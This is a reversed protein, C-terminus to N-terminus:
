PSTCQGCDVFRLLSTESQTLESNVISINAAGVFGRVAIALQLWLLGRDNRYACQRTGKGNKGEDNEFIYKQALHFTKHNRNM